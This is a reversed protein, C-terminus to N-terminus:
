LIVGETTLLKELEEKEEAMCEINELYVTNFLTYGTLSSILLEQNRPAGIENRWNNPYEPVGRKVILYAYQFDMRGTSGSLNGSSQVTPNFNANLAGMGGGVAAGIIGGTAYGVATNRAVSLLSLIPSTNDVRGLPVKKACNGNWRYAVFESTMYKYSSSANSCHLMYLIDGNWLDFVAELTLRYNIALDTDIDRVGVYPLYIQISCQSYDKESGWVEKLTLQGVRTRAYRGSMKRVSIDHGNGDSVQIGGLKMSGYAGYPRFPLEIADLIMSLPDSLGDFRNKLNTWFNANFLGNNLDTLNHLDESESLIIPQILGGYDLEEISDLMDELANLSINDSWDFPQRDAFEGGIADENNPNNEDETPTEDWERDDIDECAGSEQADSLSGNYLTYSYTWGGDHLHLLAHSSDSDVICKVNFYSNSTPDDGSFYTFIYYKYSGPFNNDIDAGSYNKCKFWNQGTYTATYVGGQGYSFIKIPDAYTGSYDGEIELCDAATLENINKTILEGQETIIGIAM